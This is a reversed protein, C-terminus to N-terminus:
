YLRAYNAARVKAELVAQAGQRSQIKDLADKARRGADEALKHDKQSATQCWAYAEVADYDKSFDSSLEMCLAVQAGVHKLKAATRMLAASRKKDQRVLGGKGLETALFYMASPHGKRAASEYLAIGRETNRPIGVADVYMGALKFEAETNGQTALQELVDRAKPYEKKEYARNADDLTQAGALQSAALLSALCISRLSKIM